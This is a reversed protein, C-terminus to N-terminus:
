KSDELSIGLQAIFSLLHRKGTEWFVGFKAAMYNSYYIADYLNWHRLLM